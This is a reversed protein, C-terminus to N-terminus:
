KRIVDMLQAVHAPPTQPVFGHGLNFIYPTGDFTRILELAAEEMETGGRVVLLPDLGGQIVKKDALYKRAWAWPVATDIGIGDFVDIEGYRELFPGAGRPFIIVPVHPYLQKLAAAIKECPQVCLSELLPAPLGQAWSEFLQICDAGAAIQEGLYYITAETLKDILTTVRDPDSYYLGRLASPDKSGAGALMYTAVTWPAGAFGILSKDPPLAARVHRVTEYIPNLLTMDPRSLTRKVQDDEIDGLAPALRPGEGAEFWVKMGLAQPILLIDAFLIAADMDFRRIPQLTVETALSPTYCLDLFSGAKQRTLRYEELYRGAQRMFWCPPKEAAQGKLVKLLPQESM